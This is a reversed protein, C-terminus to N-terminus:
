FYVFKLLHRSNKNWEIKQMYLTSREDLRCVREAFAVGFVLGASTAIVDPEEDGVLFFISVNKCNVKWISLMIKFKNVPLILSSFMLISQVIKYMKQNGFKIINIVILELDLIPM